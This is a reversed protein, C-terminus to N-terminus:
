EYRGAARASLGTGTITIRNSGADIMVKKGTFKEILWGNTLTHSTIKSTRMRSTGDALAMFVMLQDALHSDVAADGAMEGELALAAEAGVSEASKGPSGLASSGLLGGGEFLAWLTIASGPCDAPKSDIGISAQPLRERAAAAQRQPVHLPLRSSCSIGGIARLPGRELFDAAPFHGAPEASLIVEGGGNPFWGYRLLSASAYARLKKISPLFVQSFYDFSPSFPVHTGGRIRVTSRVPSFLLVPLLTQSVLTVAGATGVDFSFEGGRLSAPSFSLSTSGLQLGETKADCIAALARVGAM